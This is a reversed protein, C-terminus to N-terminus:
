EENYDSAPAAAEAAPTVDAAQDYGHDASDSYRALEARDVYDQYAPLAIAVLLGIVLALILSWALFLVGRSNPPPPSGFRNAADSGPIFLSLLAAGPILLLWGSWDIDHLRQVSAFVGIILLAIGTVTMLLGGTLNSLFMSAIALGIVPTAILLMAMIWALYRLRGIRGQVGLVNLTSFEPLEEGLQAQPPSYPSATAGATERAVPDLSPPEQPISPEAQKHAKIGASHLARLYQDTQSDPLDRKLVVPAGSFLGEIKARENKFLRALNDKASDLSVGPLVEGEFVIKFRAETM